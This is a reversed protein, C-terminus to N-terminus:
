DVPEPIDRFGLLPSPLLWLVGAVAGVTAIWLTPRLGIGGGLLGGTITGLPRVGYNVVSFAGQVRARMHQPVLSASITAGNIDLIMVGLGSGFESAFLM